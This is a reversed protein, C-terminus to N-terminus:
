AENTKRVFFVPLVAILPYLYRLHMTPGLFLTLFFGAVFMLPIIRKGDRKDVADAFILLYIWLIMGPIYILRIVPKYFGDNLAYADMRAKLGPLLSAEHIDDGYAEDSYTSAYQIYNRTIVKGDVEMERFSQDLPSVYGGILALFANVYDGPYKKFLSFYTKIFRSTDQLIISTNTKGKCPDSIVPNYDNYAEYLIFNDILNKEDLTVEDGHYVMVRAIQQIPVSLMERKDGETANTVTSIGKLLILAVALSGMSEILIRVYLKRKESVAMCAVLEAIVVVILAYLGNNRFICVGLAGTIMLAEYCKKNKGNLLLILSCIYIILFGTFIVDKTISVSMFGNFSYLIFFVELLLKGIIRAKLEFFTYMMYAFAVSLMILQLATYLAIGANQSAFILEGLRICGELLLTHFLPHHTNYASTFIQEMQIPFDYAMIGPFYALYFPIYVAINIGLSIYFAQRSSIKSVSLEKKNRCYGKLFTVSLIYIGAFVAASLICLLLLILVFSRDWIINGSGGLTRETATFFALLFGILGYIVASSIKIRNSLNERKEM